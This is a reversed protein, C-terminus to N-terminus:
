EQMVDVVGIAEHDDDSEVACVVQGRTVSVRVPQGAACKALASLLKALRKPDVLVGDKPRSKPVKKGLDPFAHAIPVISLLSTTESCASIITYPHAGTGVCLTATPHKAQDEKDHTLHGLGAYWDMAKVTVPSTEGKTVLDAASTLRVASAGDTAEAIVRGDATRFVRVGCQGPREPNDDAIKKAHVMWRPIHVAEVAGLEALTAETRAAIAEPTLGGSSVPGGEAIAIDLRDLVAHDDVDGAPATRLTENWEADAVAAATKKTGKTGKQKRAKTRTAM